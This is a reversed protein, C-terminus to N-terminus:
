EIAVALIDALQAQRLLPEALAIRVIFREAPTGRNVDGAVPREVEHEVGVLGRIRRDIWSRRQITSCM